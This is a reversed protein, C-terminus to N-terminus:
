GSGVLVFAGWFRPAAYPRRGGVEHQRLWTQARQLATPLDHGHHQLNAYFREM